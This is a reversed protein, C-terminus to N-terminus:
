VQVMPTFTVGGLRGGEAGSVGVPPPPRGVTAPSASAAAAGVIAAAAATSGEANVQDFPCALDTLGTSLLHQHLGLAVVLAGAPVAIVVHVVLAPAAGVIAARM